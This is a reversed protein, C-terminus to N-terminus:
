QVWLQFVDYMNPQYELSQVFGHQESVFENYDEQYNSGAMADNCVVTNDYCQATTRYMFAYSCELM